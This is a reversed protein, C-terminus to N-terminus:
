ASGMPAPSSLMSAGQLRPLGDWWRDPIMSVRPTAGIGGLTGLDTMGTGNPGTIFGHQEGATTASSGVVRGADNIGYAANTYGISSKGGLTGLGTMGVGNPGTIFSALSNDEAYFTGAVQGADNIVYGYAQPTSISNIQAYRLTGLESLVKGSSDLLFMEASAPSVFCLGLSLAILSILSQMRSNGTMKMIRELLFSNESIRSEGIQQLMGSGEKRWM